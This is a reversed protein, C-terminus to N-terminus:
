KIKNNQTPLNGLAFMKYLISNNKFLLNFPKLNHRPRDSGANVPAQAALM